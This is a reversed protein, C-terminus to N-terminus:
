YVKKERIIKGNDDKKISDVIRFSSIREYNLLFSNVDKIKNEIYININNYDINKNDEISKLVIDVMLIESGISNVSEYVYCEKVSDINNKIVSEIHLPSVCEGNGLVIVDKSRGTIYLYGDEDFRALDGTKFWGNEFSVISNDKSYYGKMMNDGKLYLENNVIKAEQNPFLLGVSDPKIDGIPNGSVLNSFETLGYGSNFKIGLSEFELVIDKKIYAAGCIIRKLKGGIKDIGYTKILKLFLEALSPVIIAITMGIESMEKFILRKNSNFYIVSGTYLSTLFNRIFGFVHTLPILCYYTDNFPNEIGYTGNIMGTMLNKHSLISGKTGNGMGASLIIAASDNKNNSNPIIDDNNVEYFSLNSYDLVEINEIDSSFKEEVFAYKIDFNDIYKNIDEISYEPSLLVAVAGYSIIGLSLICFKYSNNLIIGINDRKKVGKDKLYKHVKISLSYIDNYSLFGDDSKIAKKDKYENKIHNLLQNVTDINIIKNFIDETTFKKFDDKRSSYIKDM